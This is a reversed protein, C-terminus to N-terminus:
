IGNDDPAHGTKRDDANQAKTEKFVDYFQKTILQIGVHGLQIAPDLWIRYGCQRARWCFSLDEGAGNLPTFMDYYKAQVSILVETRMLVCGFGVGGVETLGDPIDGSWETWRCGSEDIELTKFLVPTYPHARRFYLGSLVDLDKEEMVRIMYQLTEPPIVMDSDLWLVFDTAENIAIQALRNRSTYVLSGVQFTVAVDGVKKLTALSQAFPAAVQDMCPVAILTKM